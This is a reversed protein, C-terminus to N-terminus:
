SLLTIIGGIGAGIGGGGVGLSANVAYQITTPAQKLVEVCDNVREGFYIGGAVGAVLGVGVYILGTKMNKRRTKFQEDLDRNFDNIPGRGIRKNLM